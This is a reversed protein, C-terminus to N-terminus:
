PPSHKENHEGHAQKSAGGPAQEHAQEHAPTRTQPPAQKSVEVNAHEHAHEVRPAQVHVPASERPVPAPQQAPPPAMVHRHPEAPENHRANPKAEQSLPVPQPQPRAEHTPQVQRRSAAPPVAPTPVPNLTPLSPQAVTLHAHDQSTHVVPKRTFTDAAAASVAHPAHANVHDDRHAVGAKNIVVTQNIVQVYHPSAHFNPHYAEGPGLPVWAAGPAGVPLAMRASAGSRGQAVFAVLAPAYVPRAVRPGPVWFWHSSAWGWRGYHSPAFGWPADDVWTWGWPDMWVWHGYHYPAWDAQAVRPVWVPGYAPDTTWTGYADLAQYGIVERSVYRASASHADIQDREASWVDFSDAPPNGQSAYSSTDTGTYVVREGSSVTNSRGAAGYVTAQGDLVKVTTSTGAEPVDVRYTGAQSPVVSLGPSDLEFRQGATASYVHVNVTGQTVSLQIADDNLAAFSVSTQSGLRIATAGVHMEARGGQKVWIRDGATLPRNLPADLWTDTGALSVSVPGTVEGLWAVTGPPDGTQAQVCLPLSMVMMMLMAWRRASRMARM